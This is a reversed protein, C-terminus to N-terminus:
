SLEDKKQYFLTSLSLESAKADWLEQKIWPWDRTIWTSFCNEYRKQPSKPSSPCSTRRRISYHPYHYNRHKLMGYNMNLEHDIEPLKHQFLLEWIRLNTIHIGWRSVEHYLRHAVLPLRQGRAEWREGRFIDNQPCVRPIDRRSVVRM